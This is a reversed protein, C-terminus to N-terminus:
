KKSEENDIALSHLKFTGYQAHEQWVNQERVKPEKIGRIKDVLHKGYAFPIYFLTLIGRIVEWVKLWPNYKFFEETIQFEM